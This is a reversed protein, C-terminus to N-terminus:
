DHAAPFNNWGFAGQNDQVCNVYPEGTFHWGAPASVTLTYKRFWGNAYMGYVKPDYYGMVREHLDETPVSQGYLVQKEVNQETTPKFGMLALAAASIVLLAAFLATTQRKM